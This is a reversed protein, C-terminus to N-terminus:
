ADTQNSVWPFEISVKAGAGPRGQIWCEGGIESLRQRMNRLGDAGADEPPRGFGRGNDELSIELKTDTVAIRLRLETAQAHKVTNNVAEKVVLFLNHRVDTSLERVPTQEPFDLRCRLGALRSYDVVFQGTYDIFHALTDNRPNVAWVIEDLSKVAQRAADSIKEIHTTVKEPTDRDQHALEGIISIQTLNAGLDDHIDKAIRAREKHLAAQQELQQLQLRLRRFSLYRVTAIIIGTFALLVGSRFWWTEWVFPSVVFGVVAADENWVGEVNCASVRFDYRGAPLRPYVASRKEADVWNEDIGELRYRFAISESGVFSLATFGFEVRRHDPPLVLGGLPSSLDLADRGGAPSSLVGGYAAVTREGVVMRTILVPPSPAKDRMKELQVVVLGRRMALM